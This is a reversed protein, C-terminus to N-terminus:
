VRERCSARGIEIDAHAFALEHTDMVGQGTGAADFDAVKSGSDVLDGGASLGTLNGTTGGIVKAAKLDLQITTPVTSDHKSSSHSLPTRDDSLRSDTGSCAQTATTGVTHHLSGAASDTDPTEHTNAQVLKVGEDGTSDHTHAVPNAQISAIWKWNAIDTPDNLILQYTRDPSFDDRVAVDGKEAPLALMAAESSVPYYDNDGISVPDIYPNQSRITM